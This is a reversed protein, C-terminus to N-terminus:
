GAWYWHVFAWVYAVQALASLVLLPRFLGPRRGLGALAALIILAVKM